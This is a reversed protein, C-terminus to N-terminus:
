GFKKALLGWSYMDCWGDSLKAHEILVGERRMGLKELLKNSADNRVDVRASVKHVNQHEFAHQVLAKVAEFAFGRGQSATNLCYGIEILGCAKSAYKFMLEGIVRNSTKEVIALVLKENDQAQWPALSSEFREVAFERTNLMPSYQNTVPDLAWVLVDELDDAQMPRMLLRPSELQL